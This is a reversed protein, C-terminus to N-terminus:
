EPMHLDQKLVNAVKTMISSKHLLQRIEDTKQVDLRNKIDYSNYEKWDVLNGM